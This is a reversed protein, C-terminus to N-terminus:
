QNLESIKKCTIHIASAPKKIQAMAQENAEKSTKCVGSTVLMQIIIPDKMDRSFWVKTMVTAGTEVRLIREPIAPKQKAQIDSAAQDYIIKQGALYDDRAGISVYSIAGVFLVLAAV